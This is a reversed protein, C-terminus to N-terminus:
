QAQEFQGYYDDPMVGEPGIPAEPALDMPDTVLVQETFPVSPVDAVVVNHVGRRKLEALLLDRYQQTQLVYPMEMKEPVVGHGRNQGANYLPFSNFQRAVRALQPRGSWADWGQEASPDPPTIQTHGSEIPQDLNEMGPPVALGHYQDDNWWEREPIDDPYADRVLSQVDVEANAELDPAIIYNEELTGDSLYDDPMQYEDWPPTGTFPAPAQEDADALIQELIAFQQGPSELSVDVFGPVPDPQNTGPGPFFDLDTGALPDAPIQPFVTASM